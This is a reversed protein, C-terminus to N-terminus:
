FIFAVPFGPHVSKLESHVILAPFVSLIPVPIKPVLFSYLGQTWMIIHCEKHPGVNLRKLLVGVESLCQLVPGYGTTYQPPTYAPIRRIGVQLNKQCRISVETIM